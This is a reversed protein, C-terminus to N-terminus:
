SVGCRAAARCSVLRAAPLLSRLLYRRLLRRRLLAAARGNLLLGGIGGGLEADWLRGGAIRSLWSGREAEPAGSKNACKTVCDGLKTHKGASM